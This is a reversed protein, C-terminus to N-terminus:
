LKARLPTVQEEVAKPLEKFCETLFTSKYKGGDSNGAIWELSSFAEQYKLPWKEVSQHQLWHLAAYRQLHVDLAQRSGRNITFSDNVPKSAVTAAQIFGGLLLGQTLEIQDAPVNWPKRDFNIPFGGRLITIKGGNKTFCVIDGLTDMLIRSERSISRLLSRFEKDESTCSILKKHKKAISLVDIGETVDKGTCGFIINATTILEGITEVRFFGKEVAGMFSNENQDYVVVKYQESLLFRCIADGIAGNGIIGFVTENDPKLEPILAKVRKVVAEAIMRPELIRKVASTAVKIIPFPLLNVAESYLGARTQEIAAVPYRLALSEPMGEFCRGGDDIIIIGTADTREILQIALEWMKAIGDQCYEEYEGARRPKDSPIVHIGRKRVQKEIEPATSYCKGMFIMRRPDVGLEIIADFLTVTTELFHQVGVVIFQSVDIFRGSAKTRAVMDTLLSLKPIPYDSGPQFLVSKQDLSYLKPSPSFEQEDKKMFLEQM